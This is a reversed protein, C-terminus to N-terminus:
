DFFYIKMVLPMGKDASSVPKLAFRKILRIKEDEDYNPDFKTEFTKKAAWLGLLWLDALIYQSSTGTSLKDLAAAIRYDFGSIRFCDGVIRPGKRKSHLVEALASIFDPTSGTGVSEEDIGGPVEHIVPLHTGRRQHQRDRSSM